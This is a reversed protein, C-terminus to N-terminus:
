LFYLCLQSLFLFTFKSTAGVFALLFYFGFLTLRPASKSKTIFYLFGMYPFLSFAFLQSAISQSDITPAWPDVPFLSGNCVIGKWDRSIIRRGNGIQGEFQRKPTLITERSYSWSKTKFYYDKCSLSSGPSSPTKFCPQIQLFTTM